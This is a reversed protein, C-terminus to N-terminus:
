DDYRLRAVVRFGLNPSVHESRLVCRKNRVRIRSKINTWLVFFYASYCVKPGGNRGRKWQKKFKGFVVEGPAGMRWNGGGSWIVCEEQFEGEFEGENRRHCSWTSEVEKHSEVDQNSEEDQKELPKLFSSRGVKMQQKCIKRIAPSPPISLDTNGRTRKSNSKKILYSFRRRRRWRWRWWGRIQFNEM